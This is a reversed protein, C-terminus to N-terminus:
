EVEEEKGHERITIYLMKECLVVDWNRVINCNPILSKNEGKVKKSYPELSKMVRIVGFEYNGKACYLTRNHCHWCQFSAMLGERVWHSLKCHVLSVNEERSWRLVNRGVFLSGLKSHMSYMVWKKKRLKRWWNKRRCCFYYFVCVCVNFQVEDTESNMVYAVCLNGLVAASVSLLQLFYSFEGM